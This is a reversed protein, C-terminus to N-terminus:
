IEYKYLMLDIYLKQCKDLLDRDARHPYFHNANSRSVIDNLLKKTLSTSKIKYESM